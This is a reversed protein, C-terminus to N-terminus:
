DLDLMITRELRDLVREQELVLQAARLAMRDVVDLGEAFGHGGLMRLGTWSGALLDVQRGAEALGYWGLQRGAAMLFDAHLAIEAQYAYAIVHLEELARGGEVGAARECVGHLYRGLGALGSFAAGPAADRFRRLNTAVVESVWERTLQPFDAGVELCLWRNAIPTGSFFFDQEGERPVTSSRAALFDRVGIAGQFTPPTSDLVYVQDAAEDFGYMVLLHAAHVDGFAPRFPIYFNDEAVIVPQGSGVVEKVAAWAAAADDSRQWAARVPHFPMMSEALTPRPSPYYFEEHSLDGLSCHFEWSAGLALIPDKGHYLLVTGICDHLCSALDHFWFSMPALVTRM